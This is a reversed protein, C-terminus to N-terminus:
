LETDMNALKSARAWRADLVRLAAARRQTDDEESLIQLLADSTMAGLPSDKGSDQTNDEEPHGRAEDMMQKFADERKGRNREVKEIWFMEIADENMEPFEDIAFSYTGDEMHVMVMMDFIETPEGSKLHPSSLELTLFTNYHFVGDQTAATKISALSISEYVGSDSLKRLESVAFEAAKVVEDADVDAPTREELYDGLEEDGLPGLHEDGAWSLHIASLLLLLTCSFSTRRGKRMTREPMEVTVGQM